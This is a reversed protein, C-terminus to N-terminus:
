KTLKYVGIGLGLTALAMGLGLWIKEPIIGMAPGQLSPTMLGEGVACKRSIATHVAAIKKHVARALSPKNATAQSYADLGAWAQVITQQAVQCNGAALAAKAYNVAALIEARTV